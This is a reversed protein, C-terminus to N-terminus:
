RRLTKFVIGLRELDAFYGPATKACCAPDEIWLGPMCLSLLSGTMAFRHDRHTPWVGKLAGLVERRQVASLFVNGPVGSSYPYVTFADDEEDVKIGLAGLNTALAHIRDSEHKRIHGVGTIRVPGSALAAIVGATVAQDSMASFDMQFGGKVAVSGRPIHSVTSADLSFDGGMRQLCAVFGLDPQLSASGLNTVTLDLDFLFAISLFYCATSADAEVAYKGGSPVLAAVPDCSVFNLDSDALVNGGFANVAALTMRVYDPQVLNETREIRVPKTASAGALVLGSLFQGSESGSIRCHGALLSPRVVLPLADGEIQAGLERLAVVLPALPREQLRKEGDLRVAGFGKSGLGGSLVLAPMFRALTGAMGLHLAVVAPAEELAEDLPWRLSLSNLETDIHIVMGLRLLADIGWFSDDAFLVGELEVPSSSLGALVLARSTFSKSGPVQIRLPGKPSEFSSASVVALTGVGAHAPPRAEFLERLSDLASSEGASKGRVLGERHAILKVRM